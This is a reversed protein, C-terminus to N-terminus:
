SHVHPRKEGPTTIRPAQRVEDGRRYANWMYICARFIEEIGTVAVKDKSGLNRSPISGHSMLYERLRYAPEHNNKFGLGTKVATWFKVSEIPNQEFTAYMAGVCPSRWLHRCTATGVRGLIAAIQHSLSVHNKAMIDTLMMTNIQRRAHSDPWTWLRYGESLRGLAQRSVLDKPFARSDYLKANLQQQAARKRGQDIIAYLERADEINKVVYHSTRVEPAYGEDEYEFIRMWCCHQGNLRYKVGKIECTVLNVDGWLFLGLRAQTRLHEVWAENLVREGTISPLELLQCCFDKTMKVAGQFDPTYKCKKTEKQMPSRPGVEFKQALAVTREDDKPVAFRVRLHRAVQAWQGPKLARRIQEETASVKLRKEVVRIM